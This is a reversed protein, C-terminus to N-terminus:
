INFVYINLMLFMASQMNKNNEVHFLIILSYNLM